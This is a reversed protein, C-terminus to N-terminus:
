RRRRFLTKLQSMLVAIPIALLALGFAVSLVGILYEGEVFARVGVGTLAAGLYAMVIGLGVTVIVAAATSIRHRDGNTREAQPTDM